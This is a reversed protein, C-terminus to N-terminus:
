NHAQQKDHLLLKITDGISRTRHDAIEKGIAASAKDFPLGGAGNPNKTADGTTMAEVFHSPPAEPLKQYGPRVMDPYYHLMLSVECGDAHMCMAGETGRGLLEAVHQPTRGQEILIISASSKLKLQKARDSDILAYVKMGEIQRSGEEAIRAVALAHRGGLHGPVLFVRRLGNDHLSRLIDLYLKVLTDAGVTLSGPYMYTGDRVWDGAENTIGINLPPGVIAEIGANRLYRQIDVLQAVGVIADTALPLNPGHEEIAGISLLAVDTKAVAAGFEPFTMDMMTPYNAVQLPSAMTEVKGAVPRKVDKTQARSLLSTSALVLFGVAVIKIRSM